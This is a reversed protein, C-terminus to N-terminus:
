PQYDSNIKKINRKGVTEIGMLVLLDYNPVLYFVSLLYVDSSHQQTILAAMIKASKHLM